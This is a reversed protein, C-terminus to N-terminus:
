ALSPAPGGADREKEVKVFGRSARRAPWQARADREDDDRALTDPAPMWGWEGLRNRDNM